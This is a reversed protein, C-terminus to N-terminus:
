ATPGYWMAPPPNGDWNELVTRLERTLPVDSSARGDGLTELRQLLRTAERHTLRIHGEDDAEFQRYDPEIEKSVPPYVLVDDGVRKVMPPKEEAV